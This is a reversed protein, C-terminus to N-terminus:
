PRARDYITPGPRVISVVFAEHEPVEEEQYVTVPTAAGRLVLASGDRGHFCGEVSAQGFIRGVGIQIRPHEPVYTEGRFHV